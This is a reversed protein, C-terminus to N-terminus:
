DSSLAGSWTDPCGDSSAVTIGICAPSCSCCRTWGSAAACASGDACRGPSTRICGTSGSFAPAAGSAEGFGSAWRGIPSVEIGGVSAAGSPGDAAGGPSLDVVPVSVVGAAVAALGGTEPAETGDAAVGAGEGASVGTWAFAGEGAAVRM